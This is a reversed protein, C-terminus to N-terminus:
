SYNYLYVKMNSCLVFFNSALDLLTPDYRIRNGYAIFSYVRKYILAAQDPDARNAFTGFPMEMLYVTLYM